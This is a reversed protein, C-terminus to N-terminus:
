WTGSYAETTETAPANPRPRLMMARLIGFFSICRCYGRGLGLDADCRVPYSPPTGTSRRSFLTAMSRPLLPSAHLFDALYVTHPHRMSHKWLVAVSLLVDCIASASALAGGPDEAPRLASAAAVSLDYDDDDEIVCFKQTSAVTAPTKSAADRRQHKPGCM